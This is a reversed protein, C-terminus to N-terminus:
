IRNEKMGPASGLCELHSKFRKAIFLYNGLVKSGGRCRKLLYTVDKKLLPVCCLSIYLFMCVYVFKHLWEATCHENM